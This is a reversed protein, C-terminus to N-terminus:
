MMWSRLFMLTNDFIELFLLTMLFSTELDLPKTRLLLQLLLQVQEQDEEVDDDGEEDEVRGPDNNVHLSAAPFIM